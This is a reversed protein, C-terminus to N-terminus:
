LGRDLHSLFPNVALMALLVAALGALSAFALTRGHWGRQRQLLLVVGYFLWTAATFLIKPDIWWGSGLARQTWLGGVIVAGTLSIFGTRLAGTMLREIAELPPLRGTFLSFRGRKLERYSRLFLFGYHAAIVFAAYGLLGLAIHAAFLPDQFIDRRPPPGNRLLAGLLVFPTALALLWFGTSREGSRWEVVGYVATIAFALTFLAQSLNAAPLQQWRMGLGVLYLLHLLLTGRLMPTSWAVLRHDTGFFRFGYAIVVLLYLFPLLVALATLLSDAM